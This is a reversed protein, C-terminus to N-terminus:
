IRDANVTVAKVSRIILLKEVRVSVQDSHVLADDMCCAQRDSVVLRASSTTSLLAEEDHCVRRLPERQTGRVRRASTLSCDDDRAIAVAGM